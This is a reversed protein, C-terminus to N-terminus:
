ALRVSQPTTSPLQMKSKKCDEAGAAGEKSATDGEEESAEKIGAFATDRRCRRIVGANSFGRKSTPKGSGRATFARKSFTSLASSAISHSKSCESSASM